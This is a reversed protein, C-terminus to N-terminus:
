LATDHCCLWGVKELDRRRELGIHGSSAPVSRYSPCELFEVARALRLRGQLCEEPIEERASNGAEARNLTNERGACPDVFGTLM